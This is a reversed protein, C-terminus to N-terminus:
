QREIFLQNAIDSYKMRGGLYRVIPAEVLGSASVMLRAESGWQLEELQQRERWLRESSLIIGKACLFVVWCEQVGRRREGRRHIRRLVGGSGGLYRSLWGVM